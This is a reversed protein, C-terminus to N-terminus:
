RSQKKTKFDFSDLNRRFFVVNARWSLHPTRAPAIFRPFRFFPAIRHVLSIRVASMGM